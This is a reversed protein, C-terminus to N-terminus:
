RGIIIIVKSFEMGIYYNNTVTVSRFYLGLRLVLIM